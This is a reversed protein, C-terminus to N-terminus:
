KDPNTFSYEVDNNRERIAKVFEHSDSSPLSFVFYQEGMYVSMKKTDTDWLLSTINKIEIKDKVIGYQAILLTDTIVYQSKVLLAVVLVICFIQIAILFPYRLVDTFGNLGVNFIRWISVAIGGICIPIVLYSLVLLTKSLQMKFIINQQNNQNKM